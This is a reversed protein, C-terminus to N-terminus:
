PVNLDDFTIHDAAAAGANYGVSIRMDDVPFPAPTMQIATWNPKTTATEFFIMGGAERIRIHFPAAPLAYTNNTPTGGVTTRVVLSSSMLRIQLQNQSDYYASFIGTQNATAPIEVVTIGISAGRMDLGWASRRSRTGTVTGISSLRLQGGMEADGCCPDMFVRWERGTVGDDFTDTFGSPGCAGSLTTVGENFSAFRAVGPAGVASPTGAFMQVYLFSVDIPDPESYLPTFTVGDQSWEWTMTGAHESLAFYRHMVPDFPIADLMTFVGAVTKRAHLMNGEMGMAIADNALDSEVRLSMQASLAPPNAVAAIIRQERLDMAVSSKYGVYTSASNAALTLVLNGNAEGYSTGPDSFTGDWRHEDYMGDEFDDSLRTVANCVTPGGGDSSDGTTRGDGGADGEVADFHLRCGALLM